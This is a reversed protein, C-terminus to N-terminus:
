VTLLRGGHTISPAISCVKVEDALIQQEETEDEEDSSGYAVLGSMKSTLARNLVQTSESISHSLITLGVCITAAKAILAEPELKVRSCGLKLRGNVL